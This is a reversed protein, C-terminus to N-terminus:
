VNEEYSYDRWAYYFILNALLAGVFEAVMDFFDFTGMICGSLQLMELLAGLLVTCTLPLVHFKNDTSTILLLSNMLAFAWLVDFFYFRFIQPIAVNLNDNNRKIGLLDDLINVFWVDPYLLAYLVCGIIMPIIVGIFLYKSKDCRRM